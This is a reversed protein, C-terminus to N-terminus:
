CSSSQVVASHLADEFGLEAPMKHQEQAAADHCTPARQEGGKASKGGCSRFVRKPGNVTPRLLAGRRFSSM